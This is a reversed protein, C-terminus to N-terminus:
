GFDNTLQDKDSWVIKKFCKQCIGHTVKVSEDDSDEFKIEKRTAIEVGCWSCKTIWTTM